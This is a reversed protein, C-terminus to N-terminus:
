PEPIFGGFPLPRQAILATIIIMAGCYFYSHLYLFPKNASRRRAIHNEPLTVLSSDPLNADAQGRVSV